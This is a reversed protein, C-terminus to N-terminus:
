RWKLQKHCQINDSMGYLITTTAICTRRLRVKPEYTHVSVSPVLVVQAIIYM